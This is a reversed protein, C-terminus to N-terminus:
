PCNPSNGPGGYYFFSGWMKDIGPIINYCNPHAAYTQLNSPLQLSNRENVVRLDRFYSARSFGADAYMGSGMKTSTHKGQPRTNVVEGGWEVVSASSALETFLFAPWYGVIRDGYELWWNGEQPDKWILISIDYQTGDSSSSPAIAGGILIETSTQVFGSCLLNYCGTAQYSDSTWYIFLRPYQDGYMGPFVQWGAEISNGISGSLIWVQSLSFESNGEVAPNWVNISARAGYYEGGQVYAIAHEHSMSVGNAGPPIFSSNFKRHHASRHSKRGYKRASGGFRLIDKTTTRRQPITGSPCRGHQQWLQFSRQELSQLRHQHSVPRSEPAVKATSGRLGPHDFAPQHQILICDIIDGDPSEITKVPPRNIRKLHQEIEELGRTSSAVQSGGLLLLLLLLKWLLIMTVM